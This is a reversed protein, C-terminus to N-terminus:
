SPLQGKTKQSYPLRFPYLWSQDAFHRSSTARSLARPLREPQAWGRWRQNQMELAAFEGYLLNLWGMTVDMFWPENDLGHQRLLEIGVTPKLIFRTWRPWTVNFHYSTDEQAHIEINKIKVM